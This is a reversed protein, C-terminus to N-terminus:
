QKVVFRKAFRTAAYAMGMVLVGALCLAISGGLVNSFYEFSIEFIYATLFLVTIVLVSRSKAYVSLAVGAALTLPFLLDYTLQLGDSTNSDFGSFLSLWMASGIFFLTGLEYLLQTLRSALVRTRAVYGGATLLVGALMSETVYFLESHTIHLSAWELAAYYGIVALGIAFLLFMLSRVLVFYVATFATAVLVSLLTLTRPDSVDAHAETAIVGVGITLTTAAITFLCATLLDRNADRGQKARATAAGLLVLGLGMTVAIRVMTNMQDWNQAILLYIGICVIVTGVVYLATALTTSPKGPAQPTTPVAPAEPQTGVPVNYKYVDELEKLTLDGSQVLAGADALVEQKSPTTTM